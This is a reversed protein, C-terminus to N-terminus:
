NLIYLYYFSTCCKFHILWRNGHWNRGYLNFPKKVIFFAKLECPTLTRTHVCIDLFVLKMVTAKCTLLFFFININKLAQFIKRLKRCLFNESCALIFVQFRVYLSSPWSSSRCGRGWSLPWPRPINPLDSSTGMSWNGDQRRWLRKRIFSFYCWSFDFDFTM